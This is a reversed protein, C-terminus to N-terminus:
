IYKKDYVVRNKKLYALLEDQFSIRRHHEAQRSIYTGVEAACSESVSFASYGDQWAFAHSFIHRDHIWRSSNTKLVRLIDALPLSAPTKILLHVHDDHGGVQLPEVGLNRAIGGLYAFVEERHTERLYAIRDKTSFIVHTLL